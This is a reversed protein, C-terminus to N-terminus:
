RVVLAVLAVLFFMWGHPVLGRHSVVDMPTPSLVTTITEGNSPLTAIQFVCARLWYRSTLKLVDACLTVVIALEQLSGLLCSRKCRVRLCM